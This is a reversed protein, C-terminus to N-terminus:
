APAKAASRTVRPRTVGQQAGTARESLSVAELHTSTITWSGDVAALHAAGKLLEATDSIFGQTLRWIRPAHTGALLGPRAAPLYPLLRREVGHLFEQWAAAGEATDVTFPALRIVQLRGALQPDTFVLGNDEQKGVLILSGGHQGLVTNVHKLHDLVQRSDKHRLQLLNIDDVVLLRVGHNDVVKSFRVTLDPIRGTTPYGFYDLVQINLMRIKGDSGLDIWAVPVHHAEVGRRPRWTPPQPSEIKSALVQKYFDQAWARVLTSKGVTFEATVVIVNKAGPPRFENNEVLDTLRRQAVAGAKWPFVVSQIWRRRADVYQALAPEPMARLERLTHM